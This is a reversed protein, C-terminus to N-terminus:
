KEPAAAAAVPAAPHATKGAVAGSVWHNPLRGVWNTGGAEGARTDAVCELFEAGMEYLGGGIYRGFTIRALLLKAPLKPIRLSLALREEARFMRRCVFGMGSVSINRSYIDVPTPAIGTLLVVTMEMRMTVRPLRRRNEQDLGLLHEDLHSVIETIKALQEQSTIM